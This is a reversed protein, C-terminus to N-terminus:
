QDAGYSARIQRRLEEQSIIPLSRWESGNWHGRKGSRLDKKRLSGQRQGPHSKQAVETKARLSRDKSMADEKTLWPLNM